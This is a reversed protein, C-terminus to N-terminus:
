LIKDGIKARMAYLVDIEEPPLMTLGGLQMAYLLILASHELREMGNNAELLSEGWALAGHRSLIMVRHEPIFQQLIDGMAATGPRAYPVFPINKVALILESMCHAPLAKLDPRAISWAIAAPPHAHIVCKALPCHKYIALHMLRESSPNGEIIQDALNIVAIDNATIFAKALGAPTILIREDSIRYSVNGDAAALMNKQYLRQCIKIIEARYNLEEDM